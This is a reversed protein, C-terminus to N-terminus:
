KAAEAFFVTLTTFTGDAFMLVVEQSVAKEGTWKPKVVLETVEHIMISDFRM